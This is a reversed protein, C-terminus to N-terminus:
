KFEAKTYRVRIDERIDEVNDRINDLEKLNEKLELNRQELSEVKKDYEMQLDSREKSASANMEEAQLKWNELDKLRQEEIRDLETITHKLKLELSDIANDKVMGKGELAAYKADFRCTLM